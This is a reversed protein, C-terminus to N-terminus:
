TKGGCTSLSLTSLNRVSAWPSRSVAQAAPPCSVSKAIRIPAPPEMWIMSATPIGRAASLSFMPARVALRTFCPGSPTLTSPLVPDREQTSSASDVDTAARRRRAGRYLGFGNTRSSMGTAGSGM